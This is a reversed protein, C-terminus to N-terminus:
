VAQGNDNITWGAGTRTVTASSLIGDWSTVTHPVQYSTLSPDIEDPRGEGEAVVTENIDLLRYDTGVKVIRFGEANIYASDESDWDYAGNADNDSADAITIQMPATLVDRATTAAGESYTSTGAGFTVNMNPNNAELEILLDSYNQTTLTRGDFVDAMLHLLPAQNFLTSPVTMDNNGSSRSFCERVDHLLPCEDLLGEPISSLDTNRRFTRRVIRLEPKNNLFGAPISSIENLDFTAELTTINPLNHLLEPPLREMDTRYFADSLDTTAVCDDLIGDPLIESLPGWRFTSFFLFRLNTAQDQGVMLYMPFSSLAGNNRFASEFNTIKAPIPADPYSILNSCSFFARYMSDWPIATGWQEIITPKVSDGGNAFSISNFGNTEKAKVILRWIGPEPTTITAEGSLDNFNASGTVDVGQAEVDYDGQAGTFEFNGVGSAGELSTDVLMVFHADSLFGRSVLLYYYTKGQEVTTDEYVQTPDINSALLVGNRIPAGEMSTEARYLDHREADSDFSIIEIDIQTDTAQQISISPATLQSM